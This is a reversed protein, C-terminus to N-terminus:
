EGKVITGDTCYITYDDPLDEDWGDGFISEPKIIANWEEKTGNFRIERLEDCDLSIIGKITNPLTLKQLNYVYLETIGIVDKGNYQSPIEYSKLYDGNEIGAFYYGDGDESIEYKATIPATEPLSKYDAYVEPIMPETKNFDYLVGYEITLKNDEVSIPIDEDIAIDFMSELYLAAMNDQVEYDYGSYDTMEYSYEEEDYEFKYFKAGDFMFSRMSGYSDSEENNITACYGYGNEWWYCLYYDSINVKYNKVDKLVAKIEDLSMDETLTITPLSDDDGKKDDNCAVLAFALTLVLVISVIFLISKRKM